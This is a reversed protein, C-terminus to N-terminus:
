VIKDWNLTTSNWFYDFNPGFDKNGVFRINLDDYETKWPLEENNENTFTLISPYPVPPNWTGTSYDVIYTSYPKRGIFINREPDYTGGLQAYNLRLPQGGQSNVGLRTNYSTQVWKANPENYLNKLFEIGLSEQEVNNSDLLVNNNVVVIQVVVNNEDLKAFNAM